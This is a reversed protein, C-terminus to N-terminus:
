HLNVTYLPTHKTHHTKDSQQLQYTYKLQYQGSDTISQSCQTRKHTNNKTPQKTTLANNIYKTIHIQSQVYRLEKHTPSKTRSTKLPARKAPQLVLTRNM